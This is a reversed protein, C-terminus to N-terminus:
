QGEVQKMLITIVRRGSDYQNSQGSTRCDADKVTDEQAPLKM